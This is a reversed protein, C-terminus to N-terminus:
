FDVMTTTYIPNNIINCVNSGYALRIYGREGWLTGFSNKLKWYGGNVIPYVGVVQLCHNINSTAPCSSLTMIGGSYTYWSPSASLCVSIPGTKQVYSAMCAENGSLHNYYGSLKTVALNPNIDCAPRSNFFSVYPYNNSQELGSTLLYTYAHEIKGGNCGNNYSVCDILQQASLIYKYNNGYLRLTDSEVQEVAAFAWGANLCLGASKVSSTYINTWDVLKNLTQTDCTLLNRTFFNSIYRTYQLINLFDDDTNKFVYIDDDNIESSYSAYNDDDDKDIQSSVLKIFCLLFLIFQM